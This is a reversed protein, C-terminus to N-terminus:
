EIFFIASRVAKAIKMRDCLFLVEITIKCIKRKENKPEFGFKFIIIPRQPLCLGISCSLSGDGGGNGGFFEMFITRWDLKLRSPEIRFEVFFPMELFDGLLHNKWVCGQIIFWLYSYNLTCRDTLRFRFQKLAGGIYSAIALHSLLSFLYIKDNTVDKDSSKLWIFCCM